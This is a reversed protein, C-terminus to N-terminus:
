QPGVYMAQLDIGLGDWAADYVKNDACLLLVASGPPAKALIQRVREKAGPVQAVGAVIVAGGTYNRQWHRRLTDIVVRGTDTAPRVSALDSGQMKGVTLGVVVSKEDVLTDFVMCITPQGDPGPEPPLLTSIIRM